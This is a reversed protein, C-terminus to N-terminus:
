TIIGKVLKKKGEITLKKTIKASTYNFLSIYLKICLQKYKFNRTIITIYHEYPKAYRFPISTVFKEEQHLGKCFQRGVNRVFIANKGNGM